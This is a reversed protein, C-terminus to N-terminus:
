GGHDRRARAWAGAHRGRHHERRGAPLACLAGGRLHHLRHRLRERAARDPDPRPHRPHDLRHLPHDHLGPHDRRDHDRCGLAGAFVPDHRRDAARRGAGVRAGPGLPRLPPRLHLPGVHRLHDLAGRGPARGRNRGAAEALAAFAPDPLDRHRPQDPRRGRARHPGDHAHRRGGALRRLPRQQRGLDLEHRLELRVGPLGALRWVGDLRPHRGSGPPGPAGVRLHRGQLDQRVRHPSRPPRRRACSRLRSGAGSSG